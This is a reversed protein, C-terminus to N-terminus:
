AVAQLEGASQLRWSPTSHLQERLEQRSMAVLNVKVMKIQSEQWLVLKRALFKIKKMVYVKKGSYSAGPLSHM